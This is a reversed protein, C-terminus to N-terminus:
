VLWQTFTQLRPNLKRTEEVSRNALMQSAFDRDVHFMNGLEDAGPLGSSRYADPEIADYKVPSIGLEKEIQRSMEEITLAEGV